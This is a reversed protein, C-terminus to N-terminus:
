QRTAEGKNAILYHSQLSPLPNLKMIEEEGWPDNSLTLTMGPPHPVALRTLM